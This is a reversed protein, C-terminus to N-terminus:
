WSNKSCIKEMITKLVSEKKKIYKSQSVQQMFCLITMPYFIRCLVNAIIKEFM